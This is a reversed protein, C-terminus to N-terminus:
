TEDWDWNAFALHVILCRNALSRRKEFLAKIRKYLTRSRNIAVDTSCKREWNTGQRFDLQYKLRDTFFASALKHYVSINFWNDIHIEPTRLLLIQKIKMFLRVMAVLWNWCVYIILSRMNSMSNLFSFPIRDYWGNIIFIRELSCFHWHNFTYRDNRKHTKGVLRRCYM